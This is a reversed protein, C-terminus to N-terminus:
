LGLKQGIARGDDTQHEIFERLVLGPPEEYVAINNVHTGLVRAFIDIEIDIRAHARDNFDPLAVEVHVRRQAVPRDLRVTQTM